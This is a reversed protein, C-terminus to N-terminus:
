LEPVDRPILCIFTFDENGRNRLQHEEHGPIFVATGAEVDTWQGKQFVQGKGSHIFIEHEWEHAHRPTFGDAGITFARMCFNPAGDDKGIVVRGTVNKVIESDFSRSSAESYHLVKMKCVENIIIQYDKRLGAL